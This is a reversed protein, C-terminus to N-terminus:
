VKPMTSSHAKSRREAPTMGGWIGRHERMRLAVELCERRVQCRSCIEIAARGWDASPRGREPVFFIEPDIDQSACAAQEQWPNRPISVTEVFPSNM